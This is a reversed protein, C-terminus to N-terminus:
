RFFEKSSKVTLTVDDAYLWSHAKHWELMLDAEYRCKCENLLAVNLCSDTAVVYFREKREETM